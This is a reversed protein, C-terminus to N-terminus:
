AAMAVLLLHDRTPVLEVCAGQAGCRTAGNTKRAGDHRAAAQNGAAAHGARGSATRAALKARRTAEFGPWAGCAM